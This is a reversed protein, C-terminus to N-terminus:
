DNLLHAKKLVMLTEKKIEKYDAKIIAKKALFVGDYGKKIKPLLEYVVENVLRRAKNRKVAKKHIKNSIVFATRFFSKKTQSVLLLAFLKGQFIKGKKKLYSFETKLPLRYKKPLV